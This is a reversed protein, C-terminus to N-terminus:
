NAPKTPMSEHATSEIKDDNKRINTVQWAVYAFPSMCLYALITGWGVGEVSFFYRASIAYPIVTLIGTQMFPWTLSRTFKVGQTRYTVYLSSSWVAPAAAFVGGVLPGAVVSLIVATVVVAGGLTGRVM